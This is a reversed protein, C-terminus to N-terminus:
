EPSQVAPNRLSDDDHQNREPDKVPLAPQYPSGDQEEKADPMWHRQIIREGETAPARPEAPDAQGHKHQAEHRHRKVDNLCQSRRGGQTILYTWIRLPVPIRTIQRM